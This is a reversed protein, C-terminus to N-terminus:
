GCGVLVLPAPGVAISFPGGSPTVTVLRGGDPSTDTVAAATGSIAVAGRVEPPIYVVTPPDGAHGHASLTFAGTDSDYHYEPHPDSSARPYVRALLRERAARPCGSSQMPSVNTKTPDFMGWGIGSTEKWTWFAFGVNYKEQELVENALLVSDRRPDNGFESVFLAAGMAKAEREGLSYTQDYGGWPYTAKSPDHNGPLLAELTFGHTYAHIDLVLNRYSSVPLGLHTPFDTMQRLLGPELFFLHRVDHVGADAYGCFAPMFIGTLCPLGDHAGTVADIVRRYFPFLLLDEFGPPLNWGPQPENFISYGAVASDDKFRKALFSVAAIYEDQIGSRNFWFNSFSEFVAGNAERQNNLFLGSPLGDTLTAWAPAGSNASLDVGKGPGVYRSYANQHMDIIVYIDLARAWDVVQAARDVYTQNFHGREPELLSWSLPLRLSNFGFAAMQALDSQCLPPYASDVIAPCRGGEYAAPDTPYVPPADPRASNGFDLLDAPVAGHFLVMRKQDDAIYARDNAPHEVHLWPLVGPPAPSSAAPPATLRVVMSVAVAGPYTAAALLAVVVVVIARAIM